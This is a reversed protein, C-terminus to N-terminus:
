RLNPPQTRTARKVLRFHLEYCPFLYTFHSEYLEQTWRALNVLREVARGLAYRLYFPRAAKFRLSVDVLELSPIESYRPVRRRFLSDEALYSFTYLGFPQKHTPDSYFYPNSFHPVVVTLTGGIALVRACSSVIDMSDLHELMHATHIESLLEDPLSELLEEADGVVDVAPWDTIDVGISGRLQKKPGCGLEVVAGRLDRRQGLKDILYTM